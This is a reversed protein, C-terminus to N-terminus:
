NHLIIDCYTGIVWPSPFTVNYAHHSYHNETFVLKPKWMGWVIWGLILYARCNLMLIFLLLYFYYFQRFVVHSSLLIISRQYFNVGFSIIENLNESVKLSETTCNCKFCPHCFTVISCMYIFYVVSQCLNELIKQLIPWPRGGWSSEFTSLSDCM